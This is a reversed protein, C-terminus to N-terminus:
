SLKLKNESKHPGHFSRSLRTCAPLSIGLTPVARSHVTAWFHQSSRLPAQTFLYLSHERWSSHFKSAQPWSCDRTLSVVGPLAEAQLQAEQGKRM